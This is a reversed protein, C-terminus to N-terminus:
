GVALVGGDPMSMVPLPKGAHPGAPVYVNIRRTEGLSASDITWTEGITLPAATSSAAAATGTFFLSLAFAIFVFRLSPM